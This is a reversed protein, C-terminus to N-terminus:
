AFAEGFAVPVASRGNHCDERRVHKGEGVFFLRGRRDAEKGQASGLYGRPRSTPWNLRHGLAAHGSM